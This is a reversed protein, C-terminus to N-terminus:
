IRQVNLANDTLLGGIINEYNTIINRLTEKNLDNAMPLLDLTVNQLMHIHNIYSQKSLNNNKAMLRASRRIPSKEPITEM